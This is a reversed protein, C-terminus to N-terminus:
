RGLWPPVSRIIKAFELSSSTCSLALRRTPKNERSDPTAWSSIAMMGTGHSRRMGTNRRSM